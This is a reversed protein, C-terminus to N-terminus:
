DVINSVKGYDKMLREKIQEYEEKTILGKDLLKKLMHLQASYRFLKETDM